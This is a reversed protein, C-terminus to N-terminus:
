DEADDGRNEKIEDTMMRYLDKAKDLMASPINRSARGMGHVRAVIKRAKDLNFVRRKIDKKPGYKYELTGTIYLVGEYGYNKDLDPGLHAVASMSEEGTQERELVVHYLFRAKRFFLKSLYDFNENPKKRHLDDCVWAGRLASMAQKISPSRRKTVHDYCMLAFLYSAAGEELGRPDTFNLSGFLSDASSLRKSKDNTLKATAEADTAVETFDKAYAAYYCNPCVLVPYILPFVAGFKKSPQYLRRMEDTVEGAILRGSGSLLDERYFSVECVPCTTTDKSFFTLKKAKAEKM